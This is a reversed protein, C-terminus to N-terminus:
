EEKVKKSKKKKAVPEVAEVAVTEVAIAEVKDMRDKREKALILTEERHRIWDKVHMWAGECGMWDFAVAPLQGFELFSNKATELAELHDKDLAHLTNPDLIDFPPFSEVYYKAAAVWPGIYRLANSAYTRFDELDFTLRSSYTSTLADYRIISNRIPTHYGTAYTKTGTETCPNISKSSNTHRADSGHVYRYTKSVHVNYLVTVLMNLAFTAATNNAIFNQRNQAQREQCSMAEEVLDAAVDTLEPAVEYFFSAEPAYGVCDSALNNYLFSVAELDLSDGLTVSGAIVQGAWEGNGCSISIAGTVKGYNRGPLTVQTQAAARKLERLDELVESIIKRPKNKDVTDLIILLGKSRTKNASATPDALDPTNIISILEDKSTLFSPMYTIKDPDMGHLRVNRSVLVEAKNKGMDSPACLQRGKNGEEYIDGDIGLYYVPMLSTIPHNGLIRLASSLLPGGTGGGCGVHIIQIYDPNLGLTPNWSVGELYEPDDELGEVFSSLIKRANTIQSDPVRYAGGFTDMYLPLAKKTTSLIEAKLDTQGSYLERMNTVETM